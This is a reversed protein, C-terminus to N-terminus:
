RRQPKINMRDVPSLGQEWEPSYPHGHYKKVSQLEAAYSRVARLTFDEINGNLWRCFRGLKERYARLTKPSKPETRCVMLYEDILRSQPIHATEMQNWVLRNDEM